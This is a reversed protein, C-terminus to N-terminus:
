GGGHGRLSNASLTLTDAGYDCHTLAGNDAALDLWSTALMRGAIAANFDPLWHLAGDAGYDGNCFAGLARL